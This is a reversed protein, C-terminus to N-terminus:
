EMGAEVSDVVEAPEEPMGYPVEDRLEPYFEYMSEVLREVEASDVKSDTIVTQAEKFFGEFQQLKLTDSQLRDSFADCVAFFATTDVGSPPNNSVEARISAIVTNAGFKVVDDKYYWFAFIAIIVMVVLVAAVIIGILCGKSMGQKQVQGQETM